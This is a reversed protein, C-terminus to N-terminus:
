FCTLRPLLAPIHPAARPLAAPAPDGPHWHTAQHRQSAPRRTAPAGTLCLLRPLAPLCPLPPRPPRTLAPSRPLAAPAPDGPHRHTAQHRM